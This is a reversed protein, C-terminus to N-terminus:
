TRENLYSCSDIRIWKQIFLHFNGFHFNGFLQYKTDINMKQMTIYNIRNLLLTVLMMLIKVKGVSLELFKIDM